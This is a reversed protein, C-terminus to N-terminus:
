YVDAWRVERPIRTHICIHVHRTNQTHWTHTHLKNEKTRANGKAGDEADRAQRERAYFLSVRNLAGVTGSASADRLVCACLRERM